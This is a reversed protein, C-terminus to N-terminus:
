SGYEEPDGSLSTGPKGNAKGNTKGNVKGNHHSEASDGKSQESWLSKSKKLAETVEAQHATEHQLFELGELLWQALKPQQLRYYVHRGDRRETVVRHSRLVSLHQSVRSHSIELVAQLGNVDMEGVRLEQVIRIRHPHALVSLFDGM